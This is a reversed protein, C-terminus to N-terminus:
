QKKEREQTTAGAEGSRTSVEIFADGFRARIEETAIKGLETHPLNQLFRIAKPAKYPALLDRCYDVLEQESARQGPTLSIVALVAEGWQRHPVGVVAAEKAGPDQATGPIIRGV